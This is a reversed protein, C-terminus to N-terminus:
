EDFLVICTYVLDVSKYPMVDKIDWQGDKAQITTLNDNKKAVLSPAELLRGKVKTMESSVEVGLSRLYDDGIFETKRSYDCLKERREKPLIAGERTANSQQKANLKYPYRQGPKINCVEIPVMLKGKTICPLGPHKLEIKYQEKFYEYVSIRKTKGNKEWDFFEQAACNKSIGDIVYDREYGLHTTSVKVGRLEHALLHISKEGICCSQSDDSHDLIQPGLFDKVFRLLPGSCYFPSTVPEMVNFFGGDSLRFSQSYGWHLCVGKGISIPKSHLDFVARKTYPSTLTKKYVHFMDLPTMDNVYDRNNLTEKNIKSVRPTLKISVNYYVPPKGKEEIMEVQGECAEVKVTSWGIKKGDFVFFASQVVQNYENTRKFLEFVEKAKVKNLKAPIEKNKSFTTFTVDYCYFTISDPM